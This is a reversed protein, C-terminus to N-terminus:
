KEEEEGGSLTKIFRDVEGARKTVPGVVPVFSEYKGAAVDKLAPPIAIDYVNSPRTPINVPFSYKLSRETDLDGSFLLQAGFALGWMQALSKAVKGKSLPELKKVEKELAKIQNDLVKKYQSVEKISIDPIEGNKVAADIDKVKEQVAKATRLYNVIDTERPDGRKLIAVERAKGDKVLGEYLYRTMGTQFSRYQKMFSTPIGFINGGERFAAPKLAKNGGFQTSNMVINGRRVALDLVDSDDLAKAIAEKKSLGQSLAQKYPDSRVVQEMVGKYYSSKINSKESRIFPDIKDLADSIKEGTSTVSRRVTSLEHSIPLDDYGLIKSDLIQKEDPTLQKVSKIADKSVQSNAAFRQTLNQLSSKLAFRLDSKYKLSVLKDVVKEAKSKQTPNVVDEVLGQLYKVGTQYNKKNSLYVPDINKLNNVLYSMADSYGFEKAQSAVYNPLMGLIDPNALENENLKRPKSFPSTVDTNFATRVQNLLSDQIDEAEKLIARPSYNERVPKGAELRKSKINDFIEVVTDYIQKQQPTKLIQDANARDELAQNIVKSLETRGTDTKAVKKTLQNAKEVLPMVEEIIKAEKDVGQAFKYVTNGGVDGLFDSAVDASPRLNVLFTPKDAEKIPLGSELTKRLNPSTPELLSNLRQHAKVSRNAIEEGAQEVPAKGTPIGTSQLSEKAGEVGPKPRRIIDAVEKKVQFHPANTDVVQSVDKGVAGTEGLDKSFKAAKELGKGLGYGALSYAPGSLVDVATQKPDFEGATLQKGATGIAGYGLGEKLLQPAIDKLKAGATGVSAGRAFPAVEAGVSAGAGAVTRAFEPFNNEINTKVKGSSTDAKIFSEDYEKQLQSLAGQRSIQGSKYANEIQIAKPIIDATQALKKTNSFFLNTGAEVGKGVAGAAEGLFSLFDKKDEKRKPKNTPQGVDLFGLFAM